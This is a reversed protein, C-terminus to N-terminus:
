RVSSCQNGLLCNQSLYKVYFFLYRSIVRDNMKAMGTKKLPRFKYFILSKALLQNALSSIQLCKPVEALQLRNKHCLNPMKKKSLNQHCSHCIYYKDLLKIVNLDIYSSLGCTELFSHFKDTLVKVGSLSLCRMCCVCPFIPGFQIEEFFKSKSCNENYYRAVIQQRNHQYYNKNELSRDEKTRSRNKIQLKNQARTKSMDKLKQLEEEHESYHQKCDQKLAIHRLITEPKLRRKCKKCKIIESSDMNTNSSFETSIYIQSDNFNALNAM